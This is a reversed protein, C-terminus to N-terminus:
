RQTLNCSDNKRKKYFFYFSLSTLLPISLLFVSNIPAPSRQKGLSVVEFSTLHIDTDGGHLLCAKFFIGKLLLIDGSIKNNGYHTINQSQDLTMYVGIANGEKDLVNVWVHSGEVLKQGIVEGQFIVETKDLTKANELLERVTLPTISKVFGLLVFLAVLLSLCRTLKKM